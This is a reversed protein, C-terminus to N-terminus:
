SSNGDMSIVSLLSYNCRSDYNGQTSIQYNKECKDLQFDSRPKGEKKVWKDFEPTCHIYEMM